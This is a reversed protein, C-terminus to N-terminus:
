KLNESLFFMCATTVFDRWSQFESYAAICTDSDPTDLAVLDKVGTVESRNTHIMQLLADFSTFTTYEHMFRLTFIDPLSGAGCVDLIQSCSYEIDNWCGVSEHSAM